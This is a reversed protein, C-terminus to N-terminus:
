LNGDTCNNQPASPVPQGPAVGPVYYVTSVGNATDVVRWSTQSHFELQEHDHLDHKTLYPGHMHNNTLIFYRSPFQVEPTRFLTYAEARSLLIISLLIIAVFVVM